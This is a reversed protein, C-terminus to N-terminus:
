QEDGKNATSLAPKGILAEIAAAIEVCAREYGQGHETLDAAPFGYAEDRAVKAAERLARERIADALGASLAADLAAISRAYQNRWVADNTQGSIGSVRTTRYAEHMAEVIRERDEDSITM